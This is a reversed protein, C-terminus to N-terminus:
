KRKKMFDKTRKQIDKKIQLTNLTFSVSDIMEDYQDFFDELMTEVNQSDSLKLKEQDVDIVWKKGNTFSVNIAKIYQIPVAKIDVDGFVEPWVKIVEPPLRTTKAM